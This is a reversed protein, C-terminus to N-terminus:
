RHSPVLLCSFTLLPGPQARDRTWEWLGLQLEAEGSCGSDHKTPFATRSICHPLHLAPFATRSICHMSPTSHAQRREGDSQLVSIEVVLREEKQKKM